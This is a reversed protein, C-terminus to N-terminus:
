TDVKCTMVTSTRLEGGFVYSCTFVADFLVINVSLMPRSQMTTLM